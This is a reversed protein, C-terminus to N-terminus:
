QELKKLQIISASGFPLNPHLDRQLVDVGFYSSYTIAFGVNQKPYLVYNEFKESNDGFACLISIMDPSRRIVMGSWTDDKRGNAGKGYSLSIQAENQNPPILIHLVATKTITDDKFDGETKNKEYDVRVGKEYRFFGSYAESSKTNQAYSGVPSALVMCVLAFCFLTIARM